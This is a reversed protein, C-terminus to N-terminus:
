AAILSNEKLEALSEKTMRKSVDLLEINLINGNKDLDLITCDDIKKNKAFVGKKLKIYMADAEKDYSIKM